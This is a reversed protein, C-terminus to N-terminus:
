NGGYKELWNKTEESTGLRALHYYDKVRVEEVMIPKVSKDSIFQHHDIKTQKFTESPLHYIYVFEQQPYQGFIVANLVDEKYENISGGMVDDCGFMAMVIALDKKDTGYIALQNNKPRDPHDYAQRPELCVNELKKPGGHYIIIEKEM